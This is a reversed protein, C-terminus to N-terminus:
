NDLFKGCGNMENEGDLQITVAHTFLFGSMTDRCPEEEISIRLTHGDSELDWGTSSGPQFGPFSIESEPTRYIISNDFDAQVSWFPENGSAVFDIGESRLRNHHNHISKEDASRELIYNDALEGTIREGAQDLLVAHDDSLLVYNREGNGEPNMVLTDGRIIYDGRNVVPEDSEDIYLMTETFSSETLELQYNIGPCSACPITGFYTAPLEVPATEAKEQASKSIQNFAISLRISIFVALCLVIIIATKKDLQM